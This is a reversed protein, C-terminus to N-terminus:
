LHVYLPLTVGVLTAFNDQDAMGAVWFDLARHSPDVTPHMQYGGRLLHRPQLDCVRILEGEDSLRCETDVICVGNYLGEFFAKGRDDARVSFVNAVRRLVTLSGRAFQSPDDVDDEDDASWVARVRIAKALDGAFAAHRAIQDLICAREIRTPEIANGRHADSGACGGGRHQDFIQNIPQTLKCIDFERHQRANDFVDAEPHRRLKGINGISVTDGAYNKLLNTRPRETAGPSGRLRRHQRDASSLHVVTDAPGSAPAETGNYGRRRRSHC